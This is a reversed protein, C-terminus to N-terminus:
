PTLDVEHEFSKKQHARLPGSGMDKESDPIEIVFVDDSNFRKALAAISSKGLVIGTTAL